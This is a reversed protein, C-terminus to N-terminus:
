GMVCMLGPGLGRVLSLSVVKGIFLSGGFESLSYATQLALVMGIFVSTISVISLSRVGVQDMQAVLAAREFPGQWTARITDAALETMGGIYYLADETRTRTRTFFARM